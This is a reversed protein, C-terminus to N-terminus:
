RYMEGEALLHLKFTRLEFPKFSLHVIGNEPIYEKNNEWELLTTETMKYSTKVTTSSHRGATESLRVVFCAAKEALKVASVEVSSMASLLPFELRGNRKDFCLPTRNLCVAERRVDSNLINGTHPLFSYTVTQQGQDAEWDPFKPARLLALDLINGLLRYGYKCDNLLAAGYEQESLDAYKHVPVEFRASDWSTNTHTPRKIYGFQIDSTSENTYVTVPFATRLHKRAEQWDIETEFDLRKSTKGLIVRQRIESDGAKLKFEAIDRVVGRQIRCPEVAHAQDYLCNRYAEDLNWAEYYSPRDVYLSLVNAPEDAPIFERQLEKDFASILHANADLIYRIYDNELVINGTTSEVQVPLAKKHRRFVATGLPPITVAASFCGNYEKQVPVSIGNQSLGDGEWSCPLEIIGQYPVSLTNVCALTNEDYVFLKSVADKQIKQLSAYADEYEQASKEYVAQISSGPLIDHFQNLLLIKWIRELEQRPYQTMPLASCLIETASIMEELQRNNRKSRAQSTLTGRHNEFYLEGSWRPLEERHLELRELFRDARGFRFKPSGELNQLRLAREIYEDKPGGGGDGIGFCSMFEGIVTNENCRTQAPVLESPRAFAIYSNEPLFHTLLESGDLGQWLFAHYPFTNTQNWSMKQSVFFPCGAKRAIQPLTASYGFVDPIWLNKVEIGFEDRFFNKGYLFQRILSEGGTINIDPEVWMGGLIEWRGSKVANKVKQYLEPYRQRVFDYHLASSAGFVYDPYKEMLDLQNAFTRACKRITERVPWLYGTDIHAHGVGTVTMASSCAPRALEEALEARALAANAPKEAYRDAARNIACVILDGHRSRQPLTKLLDLLIELDLALQWRELNFCGIRMLNAVAKFNGFPNSQTLEPDGDEDLGLIINGAAEVMFEIQRGAPCDPLRYYEKRFDPSLTSGASFGYVPVGSKDFLLAEGGLNLRLAIIKGQWEQPVAARFRFYGSEWADGWVDGESVPQFKLGDLQQFPVPQKSCAVEAQLPFEADMFNRSVRDLFREARERCIQYEKNNM